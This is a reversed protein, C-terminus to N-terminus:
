LAAGPVTAEIRLGGDGTRSAFILDGQNVYGGGLARINVDHTVLVITGRENNGPAALFARLAALKRERADDDDRFMSDLMAASQVRGFAIQATDVCRCWRSSLVAAVPVGHRRFAAGIRAADRRGNESLNRQTACEGLRFGPPDGIGPVTAAHRMLVVRGGKALLAWPMDAARAVPLAIASSLALFHRRRM